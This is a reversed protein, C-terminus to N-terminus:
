SLAGISPPVIPSKLVGKTCQNDDDSVGTKGAELGRLKWKAADINRDGRFAFSALHCRQFVDRYKILGWVFVTKAGAQVAKIDAHSLERDATELIGNSGVDLSSIGTDQFELRAIDGSPFARIDWWYTVNYAPTQGFNKLTISVTGNTDHKTISIGDYLIHARLQRKSHERGDNVLEYTGWALALTALFLLFTVFTLKNTADRWCAFRPRWHIIRRILLIPDRNDPM